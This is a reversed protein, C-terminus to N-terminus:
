AIFIKSELIELIRRTFGIQRNMLYKKINIVTFDKDCSIGIIQNKDTVERDHRIFTGKDEPHNTNKIVVPIRHKYLPQLAEDHFVSFGAYSLERM